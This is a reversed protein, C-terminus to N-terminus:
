ESHLGKKKQNLTCKNANIILKKRMTKDKARHISTVGVNTDKKGKM